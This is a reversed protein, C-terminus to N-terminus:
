QPWKLEYTSPRDNEKLRKSQFGRATTKDGFGLEMNEPSLENM